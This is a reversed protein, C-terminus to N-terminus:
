EEAPQFKNLLYISVVALVLAPGWWWPALFAQRLQLMKLFVDIIWAVRRTLVVTFLWAFVAPDLLLTALILLIFIAAALMGSSVVRKRAAAALIRGTLDGPLSAELALGDALSAAERLDALIARCSQCHELHALMEPTATKEGDIHEQWLLPDPCSNM